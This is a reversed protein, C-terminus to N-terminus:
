GVSRIRYIRHDESLSLVNWFSVRLVRQLNVGPTTCLKPAVDAAVEAGGFNSIPSHPGGAGRPVFPERLSEGADKM